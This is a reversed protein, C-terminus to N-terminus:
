QEKNECLSSFFKHEQEWKLLAAKVDVGGAYGVLKGGQGVVRHCPLILAVPNAGVARGIAQASMRKVGMREAVKAAMAGYAITRGYPIDTLLDWVLRQFPTGSVDLPLLFDPVGGGFYCDLWEKTKKLPLPIEDHEWIEALPATMLPFCLASVGRGTGFIKIEGLPSHYRMAFM